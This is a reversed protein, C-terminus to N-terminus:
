LLWCSGAHWERYAGSIDLGRPSTSLASCWAPPPPPPPPPPAFEVWVQHLTTESTGANDDCSFYNNHRVKWHYAGQVYFPDSGVMSAGRVHSTAAPLHASHGPLSTFNDTWDSVELGHKVSYVVLRAM